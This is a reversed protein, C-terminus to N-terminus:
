RYKFTSKQPRISTLNMTRHSLWKEIVLLLRVIPKLHKFGKLGLWVICTVAVQYANVNQSSQVVSLEM